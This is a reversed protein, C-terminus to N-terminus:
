DPTDLSIVDEDRRDADDSPKSAQAQASTEFADAAEDPELDAANDGPVPTFTSRRTPQSPTAASKPAQQAAMQAAGRELSETIDDIAEAVAVFAQGVSQMSDTSPAENLNTLQIGLESLDRAIGQLKAVNRDM